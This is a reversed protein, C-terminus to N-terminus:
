NTNGFRNWLLRTKGEVMPQDGTDWLIQGAAGELSVSLNFLQDAESCEMYRACRNFRALFTELCTTGDYKGLHNSVFSTYIRKAESAAQTAPQTRDDKRSSLDDTPERKVSRECPGHGDGAGNESKRGTGDGVPKEPRGASKRGHGNGSVGHGRRRDRSGNGSHSTLSSSGPSSDRRGRTRTAQRGATRGYNASSWGHGEVPSRHHHEPPISIGGGTLGDRDGEQMVDPRISGWAECSGVPPIVMQQVQPEM